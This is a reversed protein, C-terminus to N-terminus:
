LHTNQTRFPPRSRNELFWEAWQRFTLNERALITALKGEDRADLRQRLFYEAQQRETTGTSEQVVQGERNRYSIWWFASDKRPYVTGSMKRPRSMSEEMSSSNNGGNKSNM